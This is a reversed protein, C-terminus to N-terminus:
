ADTPGGRECNRSWRERVRAVLTRVWVEGQERYIRHTMAFCPRAFLAIVQRDSFGLLLYEEIVCEAMATTDGDPLTVGVLEMPDTLDFDKM